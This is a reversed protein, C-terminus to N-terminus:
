KRMKEICNDVVDCIYVFADLYDTFESEDNVVIIKTMKVPKRGNLYPAVAADEKSKNAKQERTSSPEYTSVRLRLRFRFLVNGDDDFALFSYYNSYDKSKNKYVLKLEHHDALMDEIDQIFTTYDIIQQKSIPKKKDAPMLAGDPIEYGRHTAAAINVDGLTGLPHLTVEIVFDYLSPNENAVYKKM